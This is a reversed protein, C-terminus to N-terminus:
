KKFKNLYKHIQKNFKNYIFVLVAILVLGVILRNRYVFNTTAGLYYTLPEVTGQKIIKKKPEVKINESSKERQTEIDNTYTVKYTIEKKGVVGEDVVIEKGRPQTNDPITEDVVRIDENVIENKVGIKPLVKINASCPSSGRINRVTLTYNFDTVPNIQMTGSTSMANFSSSSVSDASSSNWNLTAKDGWTITSPSTTISCRTPPIIQCGCSPSYTDDNCVQRGIDYDCGQVGGHWSCCGSTAQSVLPTFILIIALILIKKM